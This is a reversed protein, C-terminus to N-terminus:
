RPKTLLDEQTIAPSVKRSELQERTLYMQKLDSQNVGLVPKSDELSGYVYPTGSSINQPEPNGYMRKYYGVDNCSETMNYKMIQNANTTMYKRYHWNTKIGSEKLLDNNIISEPQWAAFVARSDSMLPPFNQYQNNTSYGLSSRPNKESLIPYACGLPETANLM